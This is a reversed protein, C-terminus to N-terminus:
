PAPEPEDVWQAVEDLSLEYREGALITKTEADLLM